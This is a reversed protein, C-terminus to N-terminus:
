HISHSMFHCPYPLIYIFPTIPFLSIIPSHPSLPLFLLSLPSLQLDAVPGNSTNHPIVMFSQSSHSIVIIASQVKLIVAHHCDMSAVTSINFAVYHQQITWSWAM